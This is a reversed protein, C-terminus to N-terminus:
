LLVKNQVSFVGSKETANTNLFFGLCVSILLVGGKGLKKAQWIVHVPFAM